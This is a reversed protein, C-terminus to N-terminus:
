KHVHQLIAIARKGEETLQHTEENVYLNIHSRMVNEEMEQSNCKVFESLTPYQYWSYKLSDQIMKEIKSKWEKALSKKIVIGGLPIAAQHTQEWWEGLDIIKHLGNNQYTFRSEHILLGADFTGDSVKAEIDSFRIETKHTAVPFAASLLLNATTHIGPIAIKSNNVLNSITEFDTAAIPNKSVLIPGVGKGLAAGSQLLEYRDQVLLYTAFSLKTIDLKGALAWLNLTEVDALQVDFQIDWDNTHNVMKDFIFTDNPCPSFGLSLQM